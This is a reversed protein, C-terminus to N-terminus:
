AGAQQAERTLAALRYFGHVMKSYPIMLFLALESGLHLALLGPMVGTCRLLWFALGSAAVILLLLTFAGGGVRRVWGRIRGPVGLLKPPAWWVYPASWNWVYHMLTAVSTAAFCLLYGWM